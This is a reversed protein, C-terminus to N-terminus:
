SGEDSQKRPCSLASLSYYSNLWGQTFNRQTLLSYDQNSSKYSRNLISNFGFMFKKKIKNAILPSM